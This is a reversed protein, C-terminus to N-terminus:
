PSSLPHVDGVDLDLQNTAAVLPEFGRARDYEIGFKHDAVDLDDLTGVTEKHCHGRPLHRRMAGLAATLVVEAGTVAILAAMRERLVPDVVFGTNLGQMGLNGVRDVTVAAFPDMPVHDGGILLGARLGGGGAPPARLFFM